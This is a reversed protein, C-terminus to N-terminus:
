YFYLKMLLITAFEDAIQLLRFLFDSFPILPITPIRSILTPVCPILSPIRPILTSIRHIPNPIHPILM